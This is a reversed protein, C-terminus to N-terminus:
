WWIKGRRLTAGEAFLRVNEDFGKPIFEGRDGFLLLDRTHQHV